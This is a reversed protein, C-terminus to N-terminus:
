EDLSRLYRATAQEMDAERIADELEDDSVSTMGIRHLLGLAHEVPDIGKQIWIEGGDRLVVNVSDGPGVGLSRLMEVPITVQNRKGVRTRHPRNKAIMTDM